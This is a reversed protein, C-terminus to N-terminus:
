GDRSTGKLERPDPSDVGTKSKLSLPGETVLLPQAPLGQPVARAPPSRHFRTGPGFPLAVVMIHATARAPRVSANNQPSPAALALACVDANGLTSSPAITGPAREDLRPREGPAPPAGASAVAGSSLRRPPRGPKSKGRTGVPIVLGPLSRKRICARCNISAGGRAGIVSGGRYPVRERGSRALSSPGGSPSVRSAAM